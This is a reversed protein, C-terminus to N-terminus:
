RELSRSRDEDDPTLNRSHLSGRTADGPELDTLNEVGSLLKAEDFDGSLLRPTHCEKCGAVHRVLYEGRARQVAAPDLAADPAGRTGADHMAADIDSGHSPHAIPAAADFHGADRPVASRMSADDDGCAVLMVLAACLAARHTRALGPQRGM